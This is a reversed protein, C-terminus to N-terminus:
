QSSPCSNSCVGPSQLHCPLWLMGPCAATWPMVFPCVHRHTFLLLPVKTPSPLCFCNLTPNALSSTPILHSLSGVVSVENFQCGNNTWRLKESEPVSEQWTVLLYSFFFDPVLPDEEATVFHVEDVQAVVNVSGTAAAKARLDTLTIGEYDLETKKLQLRLKLLLLKLLYFFLLLFTM